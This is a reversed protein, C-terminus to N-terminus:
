LHILQAGIQFYAKESQPNWMGMAHVPVTYSGIKLDYSVKLQTHVVGSTEGYFNQKEGAKNLAFAGGVGADVQWGDKKYVPYEAYVFTSYKQETNDASRDRGFMITSWSLLLPFRPQQFRYNLTCNLFRGTQHAKYNFYQRNNYTAGPSFNYTDMACFEFGAGRLTVYHNFEKYNGQTNTGGWLGLTAHGAGFTYSLDTLILCGDAVKMGRWLHNNQLDATLHIQASATQCLPSAALCMASALISTKFHKM